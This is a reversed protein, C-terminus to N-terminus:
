INIKESTSTVCNFLYFKIITFFCYGEINLRYVDIFFENGLNVNERLLNNAILRRTVGHVDCIVKTHDLVTYIIDGILTVRALLTFTEKQIQKNQTRVM